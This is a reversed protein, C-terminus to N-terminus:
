NQSINSFGTENYFKNFQKILPKLKPYIKLAADYGSRARYGIQKLAALPCVKLSIKSKSQSNSSNQLRKILKFRSGLPPLFPIGLQFVSSNYKPFFASSNQSFFPSRTMLTGFFVIYSPGVPLSISLYM